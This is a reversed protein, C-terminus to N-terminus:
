TRVGPWRECALGPDGGWLFSGMSESPRPGRLVPNQRGRRWEECREATEMRQLLSFSIVGRVRGEGYAGSGDGRIWQADGAERGSVGEVSSSGGPLGEGCADADADADADTVFGLPSSGPEIGIGRPLRAGDLATGWARLATLHYGLAYASPETGGDVGLGLPAVSGRVGCSCSCGIAEGDGSLAESCSASLGCLRSAALPVMMVM